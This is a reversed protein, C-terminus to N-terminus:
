IHLAGATAVKMRTAEAMSADILKAPSRSWGILGLRYKM